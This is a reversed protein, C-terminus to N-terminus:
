NDLMFDHLTSGIVAGVYMLACMGVVCIFVNKIFGVWGAHPALAALCGSLGVVAFAATTLNTGVM